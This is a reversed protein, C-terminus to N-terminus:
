CETKLELKWVVFRIERRGIKSSRNKVMVGGSLSLHDYM